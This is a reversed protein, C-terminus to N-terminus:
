YCHVAGYDGYVVRLLRDAVHATSAFCGGAVYAMALMAGNAFIFYRSGRAQTLLRERKQVLRIEMMAVADQQEPTLNQVQDKTLTNM